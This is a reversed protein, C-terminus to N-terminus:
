VADLAALLAAGHGAGLIWGEEQLVAADAAPRLLAHMDAGLFARALLDVQAADKCPYDAGLARVAPDILSLYTEALVIRADDRLNGGELPWVQLVAGLEQRLRALHAMGLLSQSGVSGTTFLKWMPHAGACLLETERLEALEMGHRARGKEPLDPLDLAAPRGWFPGLGPFRRNIEAAVAFRNNRNRDDDTIREALWDWVALAQSTGTLRTAFGRPFGFGIDFAVLVRLGATLAGALRLRVEQLAAARTAPNVPPLVGVGASGIWISDRGTKPVSNASWDIVLVQDFTM